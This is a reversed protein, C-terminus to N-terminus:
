VFVVGVIEKHSEKCLSVEWALDEFRTKGLQEILVVQRVQKLKEMENPNEKLFSSQLVNIGLGKMNRKLEQVKEGPMMEVVSGTFLIERKENEPVNVDVKSAVLQYWKDTVVMEEVDNLVRLGFMEEVCGSWLICPHFCYLAGLAAVMWLLGGLIGKVVYSKMTNLSFVIPEKTVISIQELPQGEEYGEQNKAERYLELYSIAEDTLAERRNALGERLGMLQIQANKQNEILGHDVSEIPKGKENILEYNEFEVNEAIEELLCKEVLDGLGRASEVDVHAVVVRFKDASVVGASVIERLYGVDLNDETKDSLREWFKQESFMSVLVNVKEPVNRMEQTAQSGELTTNSETLPSLFSVTYVDTCNWKHLPDLKMIISRDMYAQKEELLMEFDLIGQVSAFESETVTIKKRKEVTTEGQQQLKIIKVVGYVSFVCAGVMMGLLLLKWRKLIYGALHKVHIVRNVTKDM